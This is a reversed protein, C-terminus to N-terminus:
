QIETIDIVEVLEGTPGLVFIVNLLKGNIELCGVDIVTLGEKLLLEKDKSVSSSLFSICSVGLDDLCPKKNVVDSKQLSLFFPVTGPIISVFSLTIM